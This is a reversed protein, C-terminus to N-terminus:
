NAMESSERAKIKAATEEYDLGMVQCYHRLGEEQTREIPKPRAPDLWGLKELRAEVKALREALADGKRHSFHKLRSCARMAYGHGMRDLVGQREANDARILGLIHTRKNELQTITQASATPAAM